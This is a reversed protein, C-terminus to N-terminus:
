QLYWQVLVRARYSRDTPSDVFLNLYWTGTTLHALKQGSPTAAVAPNNVLIEQNGNFAAGLFFGGTSYTRPAAASVRPGVKLDCRAKSLSLFRTSRDGGPGDTWEVRFTGGPAGVSTTTAPVQIELTQVSDVPGPEVVFIYSLINDQFRNAQYPEGLIFPSRIPPDSEHYYRLISAPAQGPCFDQPQAIAADGTSGDASADNSKTSVSAGADGGDGSPNTAGADLRAAPDVSSTLVDGQSCAVIVCLASAVISSHHTFVITM